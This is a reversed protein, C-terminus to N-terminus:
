SFRKDEKILVSLAREIREFPELLDVKSFVNRVQPAKLIDDGYDAHTLVEVSPFQGAHHELVEQEGSVDTLGSGARRVYLVPCDSSERTGLFVDDRAFVLDLPTEIAALLPTACLDVAIHPRLADGYLSRQLGTPKVPHTCRFELPIGREDTVLLAALYAERETDLAYLDIFGVSPGNAM